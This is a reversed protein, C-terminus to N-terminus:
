KIGNFYLYLMRDMARNFKISIVKNDFSIKEYHSRCCKKILYRNFQFNSFKIRIEYTYNPKVTITNQLKTYNYNGDISDSSFLVAQQLLTEKQLDQRKNIESITMFGHIPIVPEIIMSTTSIAGFLMKKNVEFSTLEVTNLYKMEDLQEYRIKCALVSDDKWTQKCRKFIKRKNVFSLDVLEDQSFLGKHQVACQTVLQQDMSGFPIAYLCTGLQQRLNEVVSPDLEHTECAQKAWNLCAYFVLIEECNIGDIDLICQLAEKSCNLFADSAFVTNAEKCITKLCHEKLHIRDFMLALDLAICIENSTFQQILCEECRYFCELIEYKDCLIMVKSMKDISIEFKALYFFQLFEKFEDISADVIEVEDSDIWRGDFMADFVKSSSALIAKHAPIRIQSDGVNFLFHFDAYKENLFITATVGSSQKSEIIVPRISSQM